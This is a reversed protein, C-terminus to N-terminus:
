KYSERANVTFVLSKWVMEDLMFNTFEVPKNYTGDSNLKLGFRRRRPSFPDDWVRVLMEQAITQLAVWPMIPGTKLEIIAPVDDLVRGDIDPTGAFQLEPHFLPKEFLRVKLNWDKVFKEYAMVYGPINEADPDKIAAAEYNSLLADWDLDGENLYQIARHVQTGRIRSAQTYWQTDVYGCQKIIGTISPLIKEGLYYTHTEDVFRFEGARGDVAHLVANGVSASRVRLFPSGSASKKM